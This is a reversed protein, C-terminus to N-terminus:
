TGAKPEPAKRAYERYMDREQTLQEILKLAAAIEEHAEELALLTDSYARMAEDATPKRM